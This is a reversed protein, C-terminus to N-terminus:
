ARNFLPSHQLLLVMMGGLRQRERPSGEFSFVCYTLTIRKLCTRCQLKALANLIMLDLPPNIIPNIVSLNAVCLQQLAPRPARRTTAREMQFSPSRALVLIATRTPLFSLKWASVDVRCPGQPEAESTTEIAPQWLCAKKRLGSIKENQM